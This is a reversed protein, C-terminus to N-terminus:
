ACRVEGDISPYGNSKDSISFLLLKVGVHECCLSFRNGNQAGRVDLLTETLRM